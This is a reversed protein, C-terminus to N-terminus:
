INVTYLMHEDLASNVTYEFDNVKTAVLQTCKNAFTINRLNAAALLKQQYFQEMSNTIFDVLSVSNFAKCRKLVLDKFTRISVEVVSNTNHGRTTIGTRFCHCCESNRKWM